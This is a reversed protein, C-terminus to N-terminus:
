HNESVDAGGAVTIPKEGQVVLVGDRQRAGIELSSPSLGTDCFRPRPAQRTSVADVEVPPLLAM